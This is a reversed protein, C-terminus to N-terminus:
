KKGNTQLKERELWMRVETFACTQIRMYPQKCWYILLLSDKFNMKNIREAFYAIYELNKFSIWINFVIFFM